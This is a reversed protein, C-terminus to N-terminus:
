YHIIMELSPFLLLSSKQLPINSVLLGNIIYTSFYENDDHPHVYNKLSGYNKVHSTSKM